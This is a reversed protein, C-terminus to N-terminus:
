ASVPALGLKARERNIHEIMRAQLAEYRPDGELPQLCPWEAAFRLSTAFGGDIARELFDLGADPNGALVQHSAESFYFVSNDIGQEILDEHVDRM